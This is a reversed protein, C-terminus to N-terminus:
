LRVFYKNAERRKLAKLDIARFRARRVQSEGARDRPARLAALDGSDLRVASVKFEEPASTAANM